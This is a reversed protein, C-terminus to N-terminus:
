QQDPDKTFDMLASVFDEIYDRNYSIKTDLYIQILTLYENLDLNISELTDGFDTERGNILNELDEISTPTRLTESPRVTEKNKLFDFVRRKAGGEFDKSQYNVHPILQYGTRLRFLFNMAVYDAAIQVFADPNKKSAQNAEYTFFEPTRIIYRDNEYIGYMTNYKFYLLSNIDVLKVQAILNGYEDKKPEGNEDEEIKVKVADLKIDPNVIGAGKLDTILKVVAYFAAEKEKPDDFQDPNKWGGNQEDLREVIYINNNENLFKAEPFYKTVDEYAEEDAVMKLFRIEYEMLDSATKKANNIESETVGEIGRTEEYDRAKKVLWKSPDEIGEVGHERLDALNEKKLTQVESFSGRRVPEYGPEPIEPRSSPNGSDSSSGIYEQELTPKSM